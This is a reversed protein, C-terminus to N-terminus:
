IALEFPIRIDQANATLNTVVIKVIDGTLPIPTVQAGNNIILSYRINNSSDYFDLQVSGSTDDQQVPLIGISFPPVTITQPVSMAAADIYRTRILSNARMPAKFSLFAGLNARASTAAGIADLAVEVEIMSANVTLQRGTGIDVEATFNMGYVGFRVYIFPRLTDNNPTSSVAIPTVPAAVVTVPGNEADKGQWRAVSRQVVVVDPTLVANGGLVKDAASPPNGVFATARYTEQMQEIKAELLQYFEDNVGSERAARRLRAIEVQLDDQYVTQVIPDRIQGLGNESEVVHVGDDLEGVIDGFPDDHSDM